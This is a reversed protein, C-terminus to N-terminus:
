GYRVEDFAALQCAADAGVVDVDALWEGPSVGAHAACTGVAGALRELTLQGSRLQPDDEARAAVLVPEGALLALAVRESPTPPDGVAVGVPVQVGHLDSVAFVLSGYEGSEVATVVLDVISQNPVTTAVQVSM